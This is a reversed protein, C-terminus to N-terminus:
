EATVKQHKNILYLAIGLAVVVLANVGLDLLYHNFVKEDTIEMISIEAGATLMKRTAAIIGIFLFPELLIDQIKLYNIITRLIEMIILVLLLNNILSLIAHLFGKQVQFVFVFWSYFFAGIGIILFSFGTILYIFKDFKEMIEAIGNGPDTGPYKKSTM